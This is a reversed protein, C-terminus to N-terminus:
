FSRLIRIKRNKVALIELNRFFELGSNKKLLTKSWARDVPMDLNEGFFSELMPRSRITSDGWNGEFTNGLEYSAKKSEIIIAEVTTEFFLRAGIFNQFHLFPQQM